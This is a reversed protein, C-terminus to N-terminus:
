EFSILIGEIIAAIILLPTIILLFVRLSDFFYDGITRKDKKLMFMGLKLGLAISIFVAPLEFIGHPVLKWLVSIGESEVGIKSIFGLLYGNIIIVLAPFIGLVIGLLMAFLSTQFNNWFIFGILGIGSLDGTKELIDKVYQKILEVISAPAPVFFGILAFAFFMILAAFIFKKSEKIYEFALQYEKRLNFNRKQRKKKM